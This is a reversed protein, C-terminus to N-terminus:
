PREHLHVYSNWDGEAEAKKVEDLKDRYTRNIYSADTTLSMVVLPHHVLEKVVYPILDPHLTEM